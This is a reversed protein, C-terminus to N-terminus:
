PLNKVELISECKGKCDCEEVKYLTEPEKPDPQAIIAGIFTLWVGVLIIPVM